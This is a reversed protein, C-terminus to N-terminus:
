HASASRPQVPPDWVEPPAVQNDSRCHQFSLFALAVASPKRCGLVPVTAGAAEGPCGPLGVPLPPIRCGQLVLSRASPQPCGSSIKGWCNCAPLHADMSVGLIQSLPHYFSLAPSDCLLLKGKRPVRCAPGASIAVIQTKKIKIKQCQM